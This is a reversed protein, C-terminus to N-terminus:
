RGGTQSGSRGGHECPQAAHYDDQDLLDAVDHFRAGAVSSTREDLKDALGPRHSEVKARFAPLREEYYALQAEHKAKAELMIRRTSEQTEPNDLWKQINPLLTDRIYPISSKARVYDEVSHALASRPEAPRGCVTARASAALGVAAVVALAARMNM